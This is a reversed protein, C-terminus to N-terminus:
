HNNQVLTKELQTLIKYSQKMCLCLWSCFERLFQGGRGGGGGKLPLYNVKQVSLVKFNADECISYTLAKFSQM